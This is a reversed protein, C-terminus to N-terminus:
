RFEWPVEAPPHATFAELAQRMAAHVSTDHRHAFRCLADYVPAPVKVSTVVTPVAARPRGRRRQTLQHSFVARDEREIIM